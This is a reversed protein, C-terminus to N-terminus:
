TIDSYAPGFYDAAVFRRHCEECAWDKGNTYGTGHAADDTEYLEWQCVACYDKKWGSKVLVFKSEDKALVYRAFVAKGNREYVM